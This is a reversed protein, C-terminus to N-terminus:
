IFGISTGFPSEQPLLDPLRWSESLLVRDVSRHDISCSHTIPDRRRCENDTYGVAGLCSRTASLSGAMTDFRDWRLNSPRTTAAAASRTGPPMRDSNRSQCQSARRNMAIPNNTKANAAPNDARRPSTEVRKSRLLCTLKAPRMTNNAIPPRATTAAISSNSGSGYREDVANSTIAAAIATSRTPNKTAFLALRQCPAAISWGSSLHVSSRKTLTSQRCRLSIVSCAYKRAQVRV